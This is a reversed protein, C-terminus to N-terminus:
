PTNTTLFLHKTDHNQTNCLPCLPSPHNQPDIKHLYSKLFPSKNTRLQALTRRIKRFLTQEDKNIPPAPQNIIKNPKLSQIHNEAISHHIEKINRQVTTETTNTPNADLNTTFSANVFITQKMQRRSPNQKTLSHLQSHTFLIHLFNLKKDSNHHMSNTTPVLHTYKHKQTYINSIQTQPAAQSSESHPTKPQKANTSIQTPSSPHGSPTEM